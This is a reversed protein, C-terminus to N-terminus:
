NRRRELSTFFPAAQPWAHLPSPEQERKSTILKTLPVVVWRKGLVESAAGPSLSVRACEIVRM